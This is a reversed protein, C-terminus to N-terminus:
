LVGLLHLTGLLVAAVGAPGIWKVISLGGDIRAQKVVILDVKDSVLRIDSKFDARAEAVLDYVQKLTVRGNPQEVM